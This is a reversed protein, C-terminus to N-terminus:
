PRPPLQYFSGGVSRMIKGWLARGLEPMEEMRAPIVQVHLGAMEDTADPGWVVRQPPRQPQRPNEASNDYTFQMEVRTGKPLWVAKRYRYNQQWNFDWDDIRLLWQKRGNPLVAWGLMQRCLYHAHPIIGVAWGDVPMTFSDRGVWARDGAPIDIQRQVLGVDAVFKAPRGPAFYLALQSQDHEVKGSPHYHIQMVLDHGGALRMATEPWAEFVGFGPSWGGLSGSPLFGPVGFCPYSGGGAAARKRATGSRDTFFLVHHVVRAAGPTFQWARVYRDQAVPAPIVFCQYHDHGEAPVAYPQPMRVVLDPPGLPNAQPKWVPEPAAGRPAGARAWQTLVRREAKTLRREGAFEGHGAVPKWPPMRGAAVVAAITRARPAADEYAALAFPAAQGARHCEVCHRHLVPAVDRGFELALALLPAMM